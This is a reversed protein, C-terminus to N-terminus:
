DEKLISEDDDENELDLDIIDMEDDDADLNEEIEKIDDKMLKFLVAGVVGLVAAIAGVVILKSKFSKM